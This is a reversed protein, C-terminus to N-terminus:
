VDMSTSGSGEAGGTKPEQPVQRRRGDLHRQSRRQPMVESARPVNFGSGASGEEEREQLYQFYLSPNWLKLLVPFQAHTGCNRPNRTSCLFKYTSLGPMWVLSAGAGGCLPCELKWKPIGPSGTMVPKKLCCSFLLNRYKRDIFSEM